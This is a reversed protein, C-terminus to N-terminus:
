QHNYFIYGNLSLERNFSNHFTFGTLFSLGKVEVKRYHISAKNTHDGGYVATNELPTFSYFPFPQTKKYFVTM